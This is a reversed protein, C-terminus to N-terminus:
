EGKIRQIEAEAGAIEEDREEIAECLDVYELNDIEGSKFKEYVKRGIELYDRDNSRKLSSVKSKLKQIDVADETKKGLDVAVESIKKGLNEFFDAM